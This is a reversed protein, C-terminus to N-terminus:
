SAELCLCWKYIEQTEEGGERYLLPLSGSPWFSAHYLLNHAYLCVTSGWRFPLFLDRCTQHHFLIENGHPLFTVHCLTFSKVWQLWSLSCCSNLSGMIVTSPKGLPLSQSVKPTWKFLLLFLQFIVRLSFYPHCSCFKIRAMRKRSPTTSCPLMILSLSMDISPFCFYSPVKIDM